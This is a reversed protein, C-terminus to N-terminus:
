FGRNAMQDILDDRGFNDSERKSNFSIDGRDSTSDYCDEDFSLSLRKRSHNEPLHHKLRKGDDPDESQSEKLRNETSSDEYQKTQKLDPIATKVSGGFKALTPGLM